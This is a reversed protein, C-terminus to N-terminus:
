LSGCSPLNRLTHHCLFLNRQRLHPMSIVLSLSQMPHIFTPAKRGSEDVGFVWWLGTMEISRLLRGRDKPSQSIEKIRLIEKKCFTIM